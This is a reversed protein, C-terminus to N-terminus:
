LTTQFGPGRTVSRIMTPRVVVNRSFTLHSQRFMADFIVLYSSIKDEVYKGWGGATGSLATARDM